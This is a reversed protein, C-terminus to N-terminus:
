SHKRAIITWHWNCRRLLPVREAFQDFRILMKELTAAPYQEWKELWPLTDVFGDLYWIRKIRTIKARNSSFLARIEQLSFGNTDMEDPVRFESSKSLENIGFAFLRSLRRRVRQIFVHRDRLLIDAAVIFPWVYPFFLRCPWANPEFAIVILGGVRCCRVMESLCRGPFEMHHLAAVLIVGDFSGTFFPLQEADVVYYEASEALGSALARKRAKVVMGHSIDAEVVDYGAAKLEVGDKGVGCAVDLICSGPPLTKLETMADRHYTWVRETDLNHISAYQSAVETHHTAQEQKFENLREPLLVPIGDVVAYEAGCGSCSLSETGRKLLAKCDPCILDAILMGEM